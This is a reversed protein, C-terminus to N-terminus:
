GSSAARPWRATPSSSARRRCCAPAAARGAGRDDRRPQPRLLGPRRPRARAPDRRARPRGVGRRRADPDAAPGGAADRHREHRARRRAGPEADAPDADGVADARPGRHAAAQPAGQPGRRLAAGRRGRGPGPRPLRRGQSLLRHTGIVLDVSGPPSGPSRRRSSAGARRLAVADPGHDPLGRVAPPVDGPAAGRPGDDARAGRGAHRGPDGQVRRAARGRDQRLGRRGRGPPGDADASSTPRSRRRPACSTSRRRTPSRPRWRRSGRRTPASRGATPAHERASYLELLEKALDRSPRASARRPASGSAAAWSAVPAPEGRRRLALRARDARGAGLHPRGRRLAARPLRAGRRGRRRRRAAVLGAYRAIGHDIHVVLDGPQLRELLDKPVVRRLARPRRVRVTGFLERDTVM